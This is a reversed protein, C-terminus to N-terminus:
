SAFLPKQIVGSLMWNHGAKACHFYLAKGDYVYSLPVAYPYGDDGEVALVGSTQGFLIRSSAEESLLQHKRRMERFM